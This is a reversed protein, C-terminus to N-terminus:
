LYLLPILYMGIYLVVVVARAFAHATTIGIVVITNVTGGSCGFFTRFEFLDFERGAYVCFENEFLVTTGDSDSM